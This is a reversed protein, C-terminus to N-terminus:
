LGHIYGESEIRLKRNSAGISIDCGDACMNVAQGASNFFYPRGLRDFLISFATYTNLKISADASQMRRWSLSSDSLNASGVSTSEPAPTDTGIIDTIHAFGSPGVALRTRHSQPENMNMTQVLRLRSVLADRTVVSDTSANDILRPLAVASIIGILLIVLVLEILTFGRRIHM